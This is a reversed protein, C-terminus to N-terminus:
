TRKSEYAAQMQIARVGDQIRPSLRKAATVTELELQGLKPMLGKIIDTTENSARRSEDRIVAGSAIVQERLPTLKQETAKIAKLQDGIATISDDDTVSAVSIASDLERYQDRLRLILEDLEHNERNIM